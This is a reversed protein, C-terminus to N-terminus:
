LEPHIVQLFHQCWQGISFLIVLSTLNFVTFPKFPIMFLHYGHVIFHFTMFIYITMQSCKMSNLKCKILVSSFRERPERLYATGM